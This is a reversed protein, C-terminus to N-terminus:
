VNFYKKRFETLAEFTGIFNLKAFLRRGMQEPMGGYAIAQKIWTRTEAKLEAFTKM